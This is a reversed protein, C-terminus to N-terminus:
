VSDVSVSPISGDWTKSDEKWLIDFGKTLFEFGEPNRKKELLLRVRGVSPQRFTLPHISVKAVGDEEHANIIVLSCSPIWDTIRVELRGNVKPKEELLQQIDRIHEFSAIWDPILLQPRNTHKRFIQASSSQIDVLIIRVITGREVANAILERNGHLLSKLNYGLLDVTRATELHEELRLDLGVGSNSVTLGRRRVGGAPSAKGKLEAKIKEAEARTKEAEARLKDVEAAAKQRMFLYTPIAGIIIGTLGILAAIIDSLMVFRAFNVVLHEIRYGGLPRPKV